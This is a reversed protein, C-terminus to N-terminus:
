KKVKLEKAVLYSYVMPILAMTLIGGIFFYLFLDATMLFRLGILGMSLGVWVWGSLRHTRRWVEEDTLTWTNRIGMSANPRIKGMYNGMVLFLLLVGMPVITPIDLDYGLGILISCISLSSVLMTVSLQIIQLPKQSGEMSKQPDVYPIAWFVGNTFLMIIPFVILAVMKPMTGDIEGRSNWHTPLEEPLQDFVALGVILPLFIVLLLLWNQSLWNKM